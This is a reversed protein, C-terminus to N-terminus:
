WSRNRAAEADSTIPAVLTAIDFQPIPLPTLVARLSAIPMTPLDGQLNVVVDHHGQPDLVALAAHM